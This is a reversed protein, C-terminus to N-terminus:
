HGKGKANQGGITVWRPGRFAVHQSSRWAQLPAVTVAVDPKPYPQIPQWWRESLHCLPRDRVSPFRTLHLRRRPNSDRERRWRKKCIRAHEFKDMGGRRKKGFTPSFLGKIAKDMGNTGRSILRIRREHIVPPIFRPPQFKDSKCIQARRLDASSPSAIQRKSQRPIYCGPPLRM